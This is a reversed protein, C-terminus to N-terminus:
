PAPCSFSGIVTSNDHNTVKFNGTLLPTTTTITYSGSTAIESVAIGNGSEGYSLSGATGNVTVVGAAGSYSFDVINITTLIPTWMVGQISLLTGTLTATVQNTAFQTVAGTSLTYNATMYGSSDFMTSVNNQTAPPTSSNGNSSTVSTVTATTPGGSTLVPTSFTGTGGSMILTSTGTFTNKGTLNYNVTYTGDALTSSFINILGAAGAVFATTAQVAFNTLNPIDKLAVGLGNADAALNSTKDCGTPLFLTGAAICLTILIKKM